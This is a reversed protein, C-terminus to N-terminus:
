SLRNPPKRPLSFVEGRRSTIGLGASNASARFSLTTERHFLTISLILSLARSEIKLRTGGSHASM